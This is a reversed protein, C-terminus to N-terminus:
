GGEVRESRDADENDEEDVVGFVVCEHVFYENKDYCSRRIGWPHSDPCMVKFMPQRDGWFISDTMEPLKREDASLKHKVGCGDGMALVVACNTDDRVRDTLVIGDWTEGRKCKRLYLWRGKIRVPNTEGTDRDLRVVHHKTLGLSVGAITVADNM